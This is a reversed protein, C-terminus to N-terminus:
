QDHQRFILFRISLVRIWLTVEDVESVSIPLLLMLNLIKIKIIM